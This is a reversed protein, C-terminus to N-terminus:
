GAAGYEDEGVPELLDTQGITIAMHLLFSDKTAGHWHKEGAPCFVTDGAAVVATEGDATRVYGRGHTVLLVQGGEHRHWHTRAGPAFFVNTVSLAGDEQVEGWMEGTNTQANGAFPSSEQGHTVKM